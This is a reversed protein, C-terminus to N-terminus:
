NKFEEKGKEYENGNEDEVKSADEIKHFEEYVKQLNDAIEDMKSYDKTEVEVKKNIGWENSFRRELVRLAFKADTVAYISVIDILSKKYEVLNKEAQSAFSTDSNFWRYLTSEDIGAMIAADKKTLGKKLYGCIATKTKEKQQIAASM